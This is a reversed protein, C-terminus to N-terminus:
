KYPMLKIYKTSIIIRLSTIADDKTTVLIHIKFSRDTKKTDLHKIQSVLELLVENDCQLLLEYQDLDCIVSLLITEWAM